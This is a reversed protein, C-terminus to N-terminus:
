SVTRAKVFSPFCRVKVNQAQSEKSLMINELEICKGAFLMIETKKIVLYFEM